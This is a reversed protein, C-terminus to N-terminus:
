NKVKQKHTEDTVKLLRGSRDQYAIVINEIELGEVRLTWRHVSSIDLTENRYVVLLRKYIDLLKVNEAIIVEIVARHKFWITNSLDTMVSKLISYIIFYHHLVTKADKCLSFWMHGVYVILNCWLPFNYRLYFFTHSLLWVHNPEQYIM